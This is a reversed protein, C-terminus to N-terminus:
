QLVSEFQDISIAIIILIELLIDKFYQLIARKFEMYIKQGELTKQM